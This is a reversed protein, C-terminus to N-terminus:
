YTIREKAALARIALRVIQTADVGLKKRLAEMVKRDDATLRLSTTQMHKTLKARAMCHLTIGRLLGTL